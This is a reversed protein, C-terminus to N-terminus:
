ARAPPGEAIFVSHRSAAAGPVTSRLESRLVTVGTDAAVARRLDDPLPAGLLDDALALGLLTMRRVGASTARRLVADWDLAPHRQILPTMDAVWLLRRWGEKAGHVAAIIVADEPAPLRLVRGALPPPRARRM